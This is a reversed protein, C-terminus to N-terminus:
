KLNDLKFVTSFAHHDSLTAAGKMEVTNGLISISKFRGAKYFIYDLKQCGERSDCYKNQNPDITFLQNSKTYSEVADQFQWLNQIMQYAQTSIKLKNNTLNPHAINFDGALILPFHTNLDKVIKMMYRLQSLRILEDNDNPGAYLHTNVVWVKGFPLDILTLLFGKAGIKEEWRMGPFLPYQYFKEELIPYKSFTALGGHCDKYVFPVISQSCDYDSGYHYRSKLKSLNLSRFHVSFVEQLCLIDPDSDLLSDAIFPFRNDDEHGPLYVPLGWVNYTLIKYEKQFHLTLDLKKPLNHAGQDGKMPQAWFFLFMLATWM